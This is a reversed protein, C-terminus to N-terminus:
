GKPNYPLAYSLPLLLGDGRNDQSKEGRSEWVRKSTDAFEPSDRATLVIEGYLLPPIFAAIL